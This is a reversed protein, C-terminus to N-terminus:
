LFFYEEVHGERWYETECLYSSPKYIVKRFMKGMRTLILLYASITITVPKRACKCSSCKARRFNGWM